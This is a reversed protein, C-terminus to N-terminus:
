ALLEDWNMVPFTRHLSHDDDVLYHRLNSFVRVCIEKVEHPPVVDDGTGHYVLVPMGVPKALCPEFEPLNLAPALLIMRKVREPYTCGLIGAMLGGFSSGVLILNDLGALTKELKEMRRGLPGEYDEIIMGPFRERFFLGKTGQSTSELGHIFVRAPQM